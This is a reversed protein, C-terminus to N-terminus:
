YNLFFWTVFCKNFCLSSILNPKTQMATLTILIYKWEDLYYNTKYSLNAQQISNENSNENVVKHKEEM